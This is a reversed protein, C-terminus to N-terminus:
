PEIYPEMRELMAPGIGPVRDLDAIAGFPGHLTRDQVIRRALSPGVGPLLELEEAPARNISLPETLRVGPQEVPNWAAGAAAVLLSTVVVIATARSVQPEWTM